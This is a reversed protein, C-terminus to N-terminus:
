NLYQLILYSVMDGKTHLVFKFYCEWIQASGIFYNNKIYGDHLRLFKAEFGECKTEILYNFYCVLLGELDKISCEEIAEELLNIVEYQFAKQEADARPHRLLNQYHHISRMLRIKDVWAATDKRSKNLKKNVDVMQINLNQIVEAPQLFLLIIKFGHYLSVTLHILGNKDERASLNIRPPNVKMYHDWNTSTLLSRQPKKRRNLHSGDIFSSETIPTPNKDIIFDKGSFHHKPKQAIVCSYM